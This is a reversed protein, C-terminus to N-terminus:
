RSACPRKIPMTASAKQDVRTCSRMSRRKLSPSSIQARWSGRAGGDLSGGDQRRNRCRVLAKTESTIESAMNSCSPQCASTAPASGHDEHREREIEDNREAGAREVDLIEESRPPAHRGDIVAGHQRRHQDAAGSKEGIGARQEKEAEVREGDPKGPRRAEDDDPM